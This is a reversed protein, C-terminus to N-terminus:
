SGVKPVRLEIREGSASVFLAAGQEIKELTLGGITQGVRVIRPTEDGVQCMAFGGGDTATVTGVLKVTSARSPPLAATDGVMGPPVYRVSSPAREPRFPNLDVAPALDVFDLEAATRPTTVDIRPVPAQPLDDLRLARWAARGAVGAGVCFLTLSAILSRTAAASLM